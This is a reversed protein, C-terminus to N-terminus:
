RKSVTNNGSNVVWINAGDFALANPWRGVPYTGVLSGDSARVKTVTDDLSNAVWINAGDFALAFPHSGVPYTDDTQICEYWRLLAIQMPNASTTPSPTPTTELV